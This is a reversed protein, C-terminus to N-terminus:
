GGDRFPPTVYWLGGLRFSLPAAVTEWTRAILVLDDVGFCFFSPLFSCFLGFDSEVADLWFVLFPAGLLGSLLFLERSRQTRLFSFALPLESFSRAVVRQGLSRPGPPFDDVV